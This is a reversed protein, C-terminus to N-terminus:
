NGFTVAIVESFLRYLSGGSRRAFEDRLALFAKWKEITHENVGHRLAVDVLRKEMLCVGEPLSIADCLQILRDYEDAPQASLYDRLFSLEADTLDLESAADDIRMRPFSHTLCIRAIEDEGRAHLWEYGAIAHHMGRVGEYRGIDHMAGLVYAREADMGCAAAIASAARAATLSHERWPGPNQRSAWNLAELAQERNMM